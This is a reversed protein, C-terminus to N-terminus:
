NTKQKPSSWGNKEFIANIEARKEPTLPDLTFNMGQHVSKLLPRTNTYNYCVKIEEENWPNFLHTPKIHDIVWFDGYNEWTMGDTFQSELYVMYQTMTCGLLVEYRAPRSMNNRRKAGALHGRLSRIIICRLEKHRLNEPKTSPM